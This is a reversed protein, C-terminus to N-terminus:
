LYLDFVAIQPPVLFRASIRSTGIGSNVYLKTNNKLTYLGSSYGGDGDHDSLLGKNTFPIRIQGGHTHGSLILDVTNFSGNSLSPEHAMLIHYTSNSKDPAVTTQVDPIGLQSDDVGGLWISSNGGVNITTSSNKLVTFGGQNMVTTYVRAAGGGYDKNGYVAYKGYTSKIESLKQVIATIPHYQNYNSFLDGTFLVLDPKEQNIKNVIKGFNEPTYDDAIEVDSIQM